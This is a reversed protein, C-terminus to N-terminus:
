IDVPFRLGKIKVVLGEFMVQYDSLIWTYKQILETKHRKPFPISLERSEM